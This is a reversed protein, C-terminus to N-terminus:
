RALVGRASGDRWRDPPSSPRAPSALCITSCRSGSTRRPRRFQDRRRACAAGTAGGTSRPPGGPLHDPGGRTGRQRAAYRYMVRRPQSLRLKTAAKSVGGERVVTWFYLLHHYNLWEMRHTLYYFEVCELHRPAPAELAPLWEVADAAAPTLGARRLANISLGEGTWHPVKLAAGLRRTFEAEARRDATRAKVTADHEACRDQTVARVGRRSRRQARALDRPACLRGDTRRQLTQATVLRELIRDCSAPDLGWLRAAQAATLQLGPM